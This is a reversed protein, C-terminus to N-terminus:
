SRKVIEAGTEAKERTDTSAQSAVSANHAVEQVTANMQQMAAAAEDLRGSTERAGKDSQEIQSALRATATNVVQAVDHLSAAATRMAESKRQAETGAEEAQRLALEAQQASERANASEQRAKEMTEKLAGAMSVMDAYVGTKVGGDDIDYDGNAVRRAIVALEGPDKGLQRGVSRTLAWTICISVVVALLTLVLSMNRAKQGTEAASQAAARSGTVNMGVVTGYATGLQQFVPRYKKDFAVNALGRRGDLVNKIIAERAKNEQAYLEAIRAMVAKDEANGLTPATQRLRMYATYDQQISDMSEQLNKEYKRIEEAYNQSMISALDARLSNLQVNMSQIAIVSPLWAEDIERIKENMQGVNRVAALSLALIVAILCGFSLVLKAGLKM